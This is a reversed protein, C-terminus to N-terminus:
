SGDHRRIRGVLPLFRGVRAAYDGYAHRHARLLYPEEVLRVQVEIGVFAAVLAAVSLATPVLVAEGALLALMSTFIPNRSWRFLGRSVLATHENEDVGVRWSSGMTHQAILTMFFGTAFLGAGVVTMTRPLSWPPTWGSIVGIPATAALLLAVVLLAGGFWEASGVRGSIGRFGASGTRRWQLWSRWGFALVGYLALSVLVLWGIGHTM